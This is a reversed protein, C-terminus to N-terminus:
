SGGMLYPLSRIDPAPRVGCKKFILLQAGNLVRRRNTYKETECTHSCFQLNANSASQGSTNPLLLTM